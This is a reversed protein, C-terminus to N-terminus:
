RITYNGIIAGAIMTMYSYISLNPHFCTGYANETVKKIIDRTNKSQFQSFSKKISRLNKHRYSHLTWGEPDCTTYNPSLKVDAKARKNPTTKSGSSPPSLNKRFM